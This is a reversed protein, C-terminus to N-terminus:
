SREIDVAARDIAEAIKRLQEPELPTRSLRFHLATKFNQMSRQLEPTRRADSASGASELRGRIRALAERQEALHASGEATIGYQKKGGSEQTVSAHGIEELLTLTPYVVGPSPSYEGGTLEEIAKIIEYGHRPRSQLLELVVLKLDGQEFLRERRHSAKRERMEEFWGGREHHGRGHGGRSRHHGFM